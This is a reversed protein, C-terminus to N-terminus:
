PTVDEQFVSQACLAPRHLELFLLWEQQPESVRLLALMTRMLLRVCTDPAIDRSALTIATDKAMRRRLNDALLAQMATMQAAGAGPTQSLTRMMRGTAGDVHQRLFDFIEAAQELFSGACIRVDMEVLLGSWSEEILALLLEDKGSFYNYVTGSAIGARQALDRININEPGEQAVQQRAYRLLEERFGDKKRRM